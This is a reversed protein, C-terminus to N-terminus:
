GDSESANTDETQEEDTIGANGRMSEHKIVVLKTTGRLRDLARVGYREKLEEVEFNTSGIFFKGEQEVSDIIDPFLKRKYNFEECKSETGIDDIVILHNKMIEEYTAINTMEIAKYKSIILQHWRQFLYPIVGTTLVTKGVGNSGILFLGKGQNDKLWDFVQNYEELHNYDGRMRRRIVAQYYEKPLCPIAFRPIPRVYIRDNAQQYALFGDIDEEITM